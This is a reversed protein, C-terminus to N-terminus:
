SLVIHRNHGAYDRITKELNWGQNKFIKCVEKYIVPSLELFLRGKSKLINKANKAYTVYFELGNNKAFLAESPEYHLVEPSLSSSEKTGIYPPNSIIMHFKESNQWFENELINQESFTIQNQQCGIEKSNEKARLLAKYSLDLATVKVDPHLLALSIAICGSGTGLDLVKTAWSNEKLFTSAEEVLLETEPRPILTSSDIRFTHGYFGKSGILYAIPEQQCRRTLLKDFALVQSSNILEHKKKYLDIRSCLLVHSLLIEVDLRPTEINHSRLKQSASDIIDRLKKTELRDGNNKKNDLFNLQTTPAM